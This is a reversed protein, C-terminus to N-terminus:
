LSFVQLTMFGVLNTVLFTIPKADLYVLSSVLLSLAGM